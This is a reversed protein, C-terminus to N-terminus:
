SVLKFTHHDIFHNVYFIHYIDLSNHCTVHEPVVETGYIPLLHAGHIISGIHVVTLNKSGNDLFSPSVMWMGTLDKPED